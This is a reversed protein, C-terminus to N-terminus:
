SFVDSFDIVDRAVLKKIEEPVNPGFRLNQLIFDVTLLPLGEDLAKRIQAQSIEINAPISTANDIEGILDKTGIRIAASDPSIFYMTMQENRAVTMILNALTNPSNSLVNLLNVYEDVDEEVLPPAGVDATIRKCNAEIEIKSPLIVVITNWRPFLGAGTAVLFETGLLLQYNASEVIYCRVAFYVNKLRFVFKEAVGIPARKVRDAMVFNIDSEKSWPTKTQTMSSVPAVCVVAGTDWVTLMQQGKPIESMAWLYGTPKKVEEGPAIKPVTFVESEAYSQSVMHFIPFEDGAREEMEKKVYEVLPTVHKINSTASTSTPGSASMTYM